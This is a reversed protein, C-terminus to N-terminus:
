DKDVFPNPVEDSSGGPVREPLTNSAREKTLVAVIDDLVSKLTEAVILGAADRTIDISGYLSVRDTRNEITLGGVAMSEAENAFASISQAGM